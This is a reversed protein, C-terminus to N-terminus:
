PAPWPPAAACPCSTMSPPSRCKTPRAPNTAVASCANDALDARSRRWCCAPSCIHMQVPMHPCACHLAILFTNRYLGRVQWTVCNKWSCANPYITGTDGDAVCVTNLSPRPSSTLMLPDIPRPCTCCTHVHMHM